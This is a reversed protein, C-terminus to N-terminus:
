LPNRKKFVWHKQLMYNFGFSVFADVIIRSIKYDIGLLETCLYTGSAKLFISGMVVIVFKPIQTMTSEEKADFAWYRNITYNVIAGIIGGVIISYVYYVGCLETLAVMVIYDVIGGVFASVQSKGFILLSSKSIM